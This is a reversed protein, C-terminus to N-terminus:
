FISLPKFNRFKSLSPFTSDVYRFCLRQDAARNDGKNTCLCFFPKERVRILDYFTKDILIACHNTIIFIDNKMRRYYVLCILQGNTCKNGKAFIESFIGSCKVFILFLSVQMASMLILRTYLDLVIDWAALNLYMLSITIKTLVLITTM